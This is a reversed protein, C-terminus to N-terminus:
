DVVYGYSGNSFSVNFVTASDSSVPTITWQGRERIYLWDNAYCNSADYNYLNKGLCTSRVSGGVAFGYDSPYMLGVYGTWTTPRGSYVTTGRENKYFTAATTTSNARGGLNWVVNSILEKSNTTLGTSSFSCSSTTYYPSSSSYVVCTGSTRNWYPGSNLTQQLTAASWDNVGASDWLMAGISDARILKVHSAKNGGSDIINNMVGIIRWKEGNFTVYNNPDAGMYRINKDTTTDTVLNTKDTAALNTIYDNLLAASNDFTVTCTSTADKSNNSVTITQSATGLSYLKANTTYGNTCSISKLYYGSDPTVTFKNTGGYTVSLSLPTVTGGTSPNLTVTYGKQ